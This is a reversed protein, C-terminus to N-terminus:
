INTSCHQLVPAATYQTGSKPFARNQRSWKQFHQEHIHCAGMKSVTVGTVGAGAALLDMAHLFFLCCPAFVSTRLSTSRSWLPPFFRSIRRKTISKSFSWGQLQIVVLLNIAKQQAQLPPALPFQLGDIIRKMITDYHHWSKM